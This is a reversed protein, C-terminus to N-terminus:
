ATVLDAYEPHQDVYWVYFPCVPRVSRGGERRVDDLSGRALQSAIGRGRYAPEIQAPTFAIVGESPEDDSCGVVQDDIRAAYRNRAPVNRM